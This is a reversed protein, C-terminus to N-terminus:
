HIIHTEKKPSLDEASKGGAQCSDHSEVLLTFQTFDPPFNCKQVLCLITIPMSHTSGCGLKRSWTRFGLTVFGYVM